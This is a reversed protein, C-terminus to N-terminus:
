VAIRALMLRQVRERQSVDKWHEGHDRTRHKGFTFMCALLIVESSAHIFIQGASIALCAPPSM